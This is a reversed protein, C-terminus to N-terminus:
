DPDACWTMMKWVEARNTLETTNYTLSFLRRRVPSLLLWSVLFVLPILVRVTRLKRRYDGVYLIHELHFSWNLRKFHTMTPLIYNSVYIKNKKYRTLINNLLTSENLFMLEGPLLPNLLVLIKVVVVTKMVWSDIEM